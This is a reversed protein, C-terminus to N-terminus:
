LSIGYTKLEEETMGTALAAQIASQLDAKVSEKTIVHPKKSANSMLVEYLGGTSEKWANYEAVKMKPPDTKPDVAHAVEVVSQGCAKNFVKELTMGSLNFKIMKIPFPERTLFHVKSLPREIIVNSVVRQLDVPTILTLQRPTTSEAKKDTGKDNKDM